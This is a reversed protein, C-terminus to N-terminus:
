AVLTRAGNKQCMSCLGRTVGSYHKQKQNM